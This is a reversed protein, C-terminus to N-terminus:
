LCYVYQEKLSENTEIEQAVLAMLTPNPSPNGKKLLPSHPSIPVASKTELSLGPKTDRYILLLLNSAMAQLIPHITHQFISPIQITTLPLIQLLTTHFTSLHYLHYNKDKKANALVLHGHNEKRTDVM